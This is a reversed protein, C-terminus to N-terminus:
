FIEIEYDGPQSVTCTGTTYFTRGSVPNVIEMSYPVSANHFEVYAAVTGSSLPPLTIDITFNRDIGDPFYHLVAHERVTFKRDSLVWKGGAYQPVSVEMTAVLESTDFEVDCLANLYPRVGIWSDLTGNNEYAVSYVKNKVPPAASLNDMDYFLDVLERPRGPLVKVLILETNYGYNLRVFESLENQAVWETSRFVMRDGKILIDFIFVDSIYNIRAIEKIPSDSAIIDGAANYYTLYSDSTFDISISKLGDPQFTIEAEGGDGEVTVESASPATPEVFIDDNCAAMSAAALFCLITRTLM